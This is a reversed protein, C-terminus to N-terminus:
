AKKAYEAPSETLPEAQDWVNTGAERAAKQAAALREVYRVNPVRTDLLAHGGALVSENVLREGGAKGKVWVYAWVGSQGAESKLVDFEVRVDKRAVLAAPAQQGRTAWPEQGDKDRTAKVQPVLRDTAGA